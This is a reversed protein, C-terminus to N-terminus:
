FLRMSVLFFNKFVFVKKANRKENQMTKQPCSVRRKPVRLLESKLYERKAM